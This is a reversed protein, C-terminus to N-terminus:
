TQASEAELRSASLTLNLKIIISPISTQRQTDRPSPHPHLRRM